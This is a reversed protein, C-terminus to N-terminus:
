VGRPGGGFRGERGEERGDLTLGSLWVKPFERLHRILGVEIGSQRTVDRFAPDAPRSGALCALLLVRAAARMM